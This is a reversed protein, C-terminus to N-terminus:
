KLGEQFGSGQSLISPLIADLVKEELHDRSCLLVVVGVKCGGLSEAQPCSLCWWLLEPLTWEGGSVCLSGPMKTKPDGSILPVMGLCQQKQIEQTRCKWCGGSWNM